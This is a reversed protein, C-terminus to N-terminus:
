LLLRSFGRLSNYLGSSSSVGKSIKAGSIFWSVGSYRTLVESQPLCLPFMTGKSNRKNREVSSRVWVSHAGRPPITWCPAFDSIPSSLRPSHTRISFLERFWRTAPWSSIATWIYFRILASCSFIFRVVHGEKVGNQAWIRSHIRHSFFGM